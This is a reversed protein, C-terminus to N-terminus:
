AVQRNDGRRPYDDELEWLAKNIDWKIGLELCRSQLEDLIQDMEDM